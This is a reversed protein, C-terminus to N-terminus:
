DKGIRVEIKQYLWIIVFYAILAPIVLITYPSGILLGVCSTYWLSAATTLGKIKDDGRVLITGACLIGIGSVVQAPLRMPDGSLDTASQIGIIMIITAGVCVLAHTKLGAPKGWKEREFGLVGGAILSIVIKLSSYLMATNWVFM